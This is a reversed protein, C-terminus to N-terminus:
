KPSGSLQHALLPLPAIGLEFQASVPEYRSPQGMFSQAIAADQIGLKVGSSHSASSHHPREIQHHPRNARASPMSSKRAINTSTSPKSMGRDRPRHRSLVILAVLVTIVQKVRRM